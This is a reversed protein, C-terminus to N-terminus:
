REAQEREREREAHEAAPMSLAAPLPGRAFLVRGDRAVHAVFAPDWEGLGRSALMIQVDRPADLHRDRALGISHFIDGGQHVALHEDDTDFIFLLDVDSPQPDNLSREDHRAMSGYLVVALLDPHRQAVTLILDRVLASTAPDLWPVIPIIIGEPIQDTLETGM